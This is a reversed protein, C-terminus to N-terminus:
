LWTPPLDYPSPQHAVAGVQGDSTAIYVGHLQRNSFNFLFVLTHGRKISQVLPLYKRPLGVQTPDPATASRLILAATPHCDLARTNIITTAITWTITEPGVTLTPAKAARAGDVLRLM